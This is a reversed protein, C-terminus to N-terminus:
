TIFGLIGPEVAEVNFVPSAVDGIAGLLASAPVTAEITEDVTINYNAFTPLTITVVTESTRVVDTVALGAKVRADWGNIEAQDSDLGDIIDQRIADFGAGPEIWIDEAVTLVITLGGTRIDGEITPNTVTGSLTVEVVTTAGFEYAGIDWASGVPRVNGDFDTTFETLTAGADKAPSLTQIHFDDAAENVYLPDTNIENTNTTNTGEDTVQTPNNFLVNSDLVTDTSTPKIHIGIASSNSVINNKIQAGIVLGTGQSLRIGDVSGDITNNYIKPAVNDRTGRSIDVGVACDIVINNYVEVTGSSEFLLIGDFGITASGEIIKNNRYISGLTDATFNHIGFGPHLTGVNNIVNGDLLTGQSQNYIGHPSFTSVVFQAFDHINCDIIENNSAAGTTTILVGHAQANKMECGTVRIHNAGETIKVTELQTTVDAGDFILDQIIIYSKNNGSSTEGYCRANGSPKITVTDGTNAKVITATAYSGGGSPFLNEMSEVYTGIKIILTDAAVMQGGAFNITLWPNGESGDGTTDNGTKAVYYIAM